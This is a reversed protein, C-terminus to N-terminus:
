GESGPEGDVLEAVWGAVAEGGFEGVDSNYTDALAGARRKSIVKEKM